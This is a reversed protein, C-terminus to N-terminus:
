ITKQPPWHLFSLFVFYFDNSRARTGCITATFVSFIFITFLYVIYRHGELPSYFTEVVGACVTRTRIGSCLHHKSRWVELDDLPLAILAMCSRCVLLIFLQLCHWGYVTYVISAFRLFVIRSQPYISFEKKSARKWEISFNKCRSSINLLLWTMVVGCVISQFWRFHFFAVFISFHFTISPACKSPPTSVACYRQRM